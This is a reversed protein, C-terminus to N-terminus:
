KPPPAPTSPAAEPPTSTQPNVEGAPPTAVPPTVPALSAGSTSPTSPAADPTSRVDSGATTTASTNASAGTSAAEQGSWWDKSARQKPSAKLYAGLQSYPIPQKPAAATAPKSAALVPGATIALAVAGAALLITKM